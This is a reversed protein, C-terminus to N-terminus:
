KEPSVVQNASQRSIGLPTKRTWRTSSYMLWLAVVTLLFFPMNSQTEAGYWWIPFSVLALITIHPPRTVFPTLLILDYTSIFPNVLLSLVFAFSGSMQTRWALVTALVYAGAGTLLSVPSPLLGVLGWLTPATLAPHSSLSNRLWQLPWDPMFLFAPISFLAYTLGAAFLDRRSIARCAYLLPVAFVIINPKLLLLAVVIAMGRQRVLLPFVGLLFPELQASLFAQLSPVFFAWLMATRKLVFVFVVLSIIVWFLAATEYPLFAFPIFMYLSPLPYCEGPIAYPNQGQVLALAAQWYYHFDFFPLLM